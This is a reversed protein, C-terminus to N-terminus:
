ICRTCLVLMTDNFLVVRILRLLVILNDFDICTIIPSTIAALMVPSPITLFRSRRWLAIQRTCPMNLKPGLYQASSSVIYPGKSITDAIPQQARARTASEKQFAPYPLYLAEM